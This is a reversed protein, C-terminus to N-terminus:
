GEQFRGLDMIKEPEKEGITKLETENMKDKEVGAFDERRGERDKEEM